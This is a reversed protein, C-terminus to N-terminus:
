KEKIWYGSPYLEKFGNKFYFEKVRERCCVFLKKNPIKNMIGRVAVSGYGRKHSAIGNIVANENNIFVIAACKQKIGFYDAAGMNLRRCYDVAFYPYEPLSLGDVDLLEYLEDSKLEDSCPGDFNEAKRSLVYIPEMPPRGIAILTKLDSYVSAPNIVNVFERLEKLDANNNCIIMNGDTFSIVARDGDASWFLVKGDNKYAEYLCAIKVAEANVTKFEPLEDILCIM